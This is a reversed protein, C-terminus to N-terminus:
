QFKRSLVIPPMKRTKEGASMYPTLRVKVKSAEAGDGDDDRLNRVFRIISGIGGNKVIEDLEVDVPISMRSMQGPGVEFAHDMQGTAMQVGDLLLEYDCGALRAPLRTENKVDVNVLCRLKYDGQLLAKGAKALNAPTLDNKHKIDTLNIGAWVIDSVGGLSYKCNVLNLMRAVGCGGLTTLVGLCCLVAIIKLNRKM